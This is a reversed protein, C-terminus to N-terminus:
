QMEFPNDPAEYLLPKDAPFILVLEGKSGIALAAGTSDDAKVAKPLQIQRLIQSDPGVANVFARLLHLM